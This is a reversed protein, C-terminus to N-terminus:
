SCGQGPDYPTVVATLPQVTPTVTLVPETEQAVNIFSFEVTTSEGPGLEATLVGVPRNGHLYSGVPLEKGDVTGTGLASQAPGYGVVNTRVIGPPVGFAGAGTVYAPLSEAADAPATNTLTVRVAFGRYGNYSCSPLIQVTRRVYYDMKAGTGDNFYVDFATGGKSPGTVAGGLATGGIVDQEASVNSWVYLRHEESSARIADVLGASDGQGDALASFVRAGVAAFYEDQLAPEEIRAYTESLLTPVVNDATLSVPLGTQEILLSLAADDLEDLEVPGTARLINSLVVADLAIVGDITTGENRNEWMRKTTQAVTPFDPTLNASQFFGGIRTSYIQVQQPDVDLPPNFRGIDNASGQGVLDIAGNDTRIVAFAGSIGGTARIEASNQILILYTRPGSAGMMPPLVEAVSSASNLAQRAKDMSDIVEVLPASVQPLLRNRDINGLREYSLQVTNAAGSLTPAVAQLPSVDIRGDTPSLSDWNLSDFSDLMPAVARNVVDDASVTVETIASFNPGLIPIISAAKWLPDTGADRAAATHDRLEGLSRQAAEGNGSTLETQLTPLLDASAQLHSQVESARYALWAAAVVSILFLVGLVLTM